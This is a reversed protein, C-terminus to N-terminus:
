ESTREVTEPAVMHGSNTYGNQTNSFPLQKMAQERVIVNRFITGFVSHMTRAEATAVAEKMELERVKTERKTVDADKERLKEIISRLESIEGTYSKIMGDRHAVADQSEKLKRELAVAQDKIRKVGELGELGFTREQVLRDIVETLTDAM